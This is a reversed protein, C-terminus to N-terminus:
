YERGSSVDDYWVDGVTSCHDLGKFFTDTKYLSQTRVACYVSDRETTLVLRNISYLAFTTTEESIWVFCM